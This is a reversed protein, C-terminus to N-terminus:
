ACVQFLFTPPFDYIVYKSEVPKNEFLSWLMVFYKQQKETNQQM